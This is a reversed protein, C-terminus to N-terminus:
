TKDGLARGLEEGTKNRVAEKGPFERESSLAGALDTLRRQRLVRFGIQNTGLKEFLLTDGAHIGLTNRIEVPITVQGKTTVRAMAM